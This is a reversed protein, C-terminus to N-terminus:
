RLLLLGHPLPPILFQISEKYTENKNDAAYSVVAFCNFSLVAAIVAATFKFKKM